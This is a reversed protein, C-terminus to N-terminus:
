HCVRERHDSSLEDMILAGPQHGLSRYVMQVIMKLDNLPLPAARAAVAREVVLERMALPLAGASELFHIFGLCQAGLRHQETRTYIRWSTARPAMTLVTASPAAASEPESASEPATAQSHDSAAQTLEGLWILAESVQDTDFGVANLKHELEAIEPCTQGRWYNNCVYNLVEFM